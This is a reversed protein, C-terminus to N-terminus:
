LLLGPAIRVLFFPIVARTSVGTRADPPFRALPPSGATLAPLSSLQGARTRDDPVFNQTQRVIAIAVPWTPPDYELTGGKSSKPRSHSILDKFVNPNIM